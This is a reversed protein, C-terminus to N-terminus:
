YEGVSRNIFSEFVYELNFSCKLVCDFDVEDEIFFLEKLKLM